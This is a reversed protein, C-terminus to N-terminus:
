LVELPPMKELLLTLINNSLAIFTADIAFNQHPFPKKKPIRASEGSLGKDLKEWDIPSDMLNHYSIRTVPPNQNKITIEANKGWTKGTTDIWFRNSFKVKNFEKDSFEKSSTSLFSDVAAKDIHSGEAYFKCQIAWYDGEQTLAVLDIGVDAGGFYKRYPFDEWLWISKLKEKYLPDTQLYSKMLKEFKYGKDRESFAFKRYKALIGAFATM